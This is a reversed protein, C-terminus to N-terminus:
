PNTTEEPAQQQQKRGMFYLIAGAVVFAIKIAWAAGEGWEYVWQM